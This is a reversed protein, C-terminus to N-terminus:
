LCAGLLYFSAHYHASVACYLRLRKIATIAYIGYRGATSYTFHVLIMLKRNFNLAFRIMNTCNASVDLVIKGIESLVPLLIEAYYLTIGYYLTCACYFYFM